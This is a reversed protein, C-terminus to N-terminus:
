EVSFSAQSAIRSASRSRTTRIDGARDGLKEDFPEGGYFWKEIGRRPPVPFLLYMRPGLAVGGGSSTSSSRRTRALASVVVSLLVVAVRPSPGVHASVFLKGLGFLGAAGTASLRYGLV